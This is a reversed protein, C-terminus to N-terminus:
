LGFRKRSPLLAFAVSLMTVKGPLAYSSGIESGIFSIQGQDRYPSSEVVNARLLDKSYGSRGEVDWILM